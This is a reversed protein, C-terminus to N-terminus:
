RQRDNRSTARPHLSLESSGNRPNHRVPADDAPDATDAVAVASHAFVSFRGNRNRFRHSRPLSRSFTPGHWVTQRSPGSQFSPEVTSLTLIRPTKTVPSTFAPRTSVRAAAAPAPPALVALAPLPDISRPPPSGVPIQPPGRGADAATTAAAAAIVVVLAASPARGGATGPARDPRACAAPVRGCAFPVRRDRPVRGPPLTGPRHAAATATRETKARRGGGNAPRRVPAARADPRDGGGCGYYGRPWENSSTRRGNRCTNEPRLAADAPRWGRKYPVGRGGSCGIM